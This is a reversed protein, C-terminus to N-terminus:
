SSTDFETHCLYTDVKSLTCSNEAAVKNAFIVSRRSTFPRIVLSVANAAGFSIVIDKYSTTCMEFNTFNLDQTCHRRNYHHRVGASCQDM